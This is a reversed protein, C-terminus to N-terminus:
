IESRRFELLSLGIATRDVTHHLREVRSSKARFDLPVNIVVSRREIPTPLLDDGDRTVGGGVNSKLTPRHVLTESENSGSGM